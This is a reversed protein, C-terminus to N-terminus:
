PWRHHRAVLRYFGFGAGDWADTGDREALSRLAGLAVARDREGAESVRSVSGDGHARDVHWTLGTARLVYDDRPPVTIFVARRMM